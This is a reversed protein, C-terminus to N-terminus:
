ESRHVSTRLLRFIFSLLQSEVSGREARNGNQKVEGLKEKGRMSRSTAQRCINDGEGMFTHKISEANLRGSKKPIKNRDRKGMLSQPEEDKM